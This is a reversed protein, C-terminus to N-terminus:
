AAPQPHRRSRLWRQLDSDLVGVRKETLKVTTPGKGISLLRKLTRYGLDAIQAAEKISRVQDRPVTGPKEVTFLWPYLARLEELKAIAAARVTENQRSEGIRLITGPQM